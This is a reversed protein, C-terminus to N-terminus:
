SRQVGGARVLLLLGLIGLTLMVIMSMGTSKLGAEPATATQAQAPKNGLGLASAGKAVVTSTAFAEASTVLKSGVNALGSTLSSWITSSTEVAPLSIEPTTAVELSSFEAGGLGTSATEGVAGSTAGVTGAEAAGAGAGAGSSPGALAVGGAVVFAAIILDRGVINITASSSQAGSIHTTLVGIQQQQELPIKLAFNFDNTVQQITVDRIIGFQTDAHDLAGSNFLGASYEYHDTKLVFWRGGEINVPTQILYRLLPEEHKVRHYELIQADTMGAPIPIDSFKMYPFLDQLESFGIIGERRIVFVLEGKSVYTVPNLGRPNMNMFTPLVVEEPYAPTDMDALPINVGYYSGQQMFHLQGYMDRQVFANM